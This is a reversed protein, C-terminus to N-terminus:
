VAHKFPTATKVNQHTDELKNQLWLGIGVGIIIVAAMFAYLLTVEM